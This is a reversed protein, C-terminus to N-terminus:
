GLKSPVAWVKVGQVENGQSMSAERFERKKEDDTYFALKLPM